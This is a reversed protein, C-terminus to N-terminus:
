RGRGRRERLIAANQEVTRRTLPYFLQMTLFVLLYGIGPVLTAITYIRETVEVTQASAGSVYGIATLIFGGAGGALAQGLKRAFSYAAYVTGDERNGTVVEQHDIIDTIFAWIIMNFYSIGLTAIFYLFIYTGINRVRLFFLLLYLVGTLLMGAAGAEKKGFKASIRRVFPALALMGGMTVFHLVSIAKANRFYDMFLYNNMGQGILTASLLAMAAGVLALLPRNRMLSGALEGASSNKESGSEPHVRETCLHYCLLYCIVACIGFIVSMVVLRMPYVIQNGVADEGYVILPGLTGIVIGALATGVSRCVSLSARDGAEASIVAAMSGYPINIATYCVSGWLLYTLSVYLLKAGYPWDRVFYGYMLVGAVAVPVCMRRIWPRFRGEPTPPMRDVIRGMIVDTCADVIRAILFLIGAVVGPIGLVKVFYVMLFNSAFIFTFDNGFDGFMYGVKDRIGFPRGHDTTEANQRM